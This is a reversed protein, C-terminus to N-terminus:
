CDKFEVNERKMSEIHYAVIDEDESGIVKINEMDLNKINKVFIGRGKMEEFNDMMIPVFARQNEKEKYTATINQLEIHEIPMEPLGYMCILSADIGICDIDRAHIDGIKPTREDVPLAEQNQVYDSHGDPDCFYFMNVTFPMSVDVMDIKDFFIDSLISREGRGRRTKIRLGRDTSDFICQSIYVKSVGGAVESGITVSGHGRNLKCNRIIINESPVHHYLSMYYKGSKIAICDDGVSIETGLVLVDKCSEPDFGDTNPSDSPNYIKIDLFKIDECYYSHITWSPSNKVEVGQMRIKKSRCFYVTNPRWAIRKKKADMWWDSRDANGNIVGEGIIDVNEVEMGTILSAFASLPNGEWSSFSLERREDTSERMGYLIPYHKRDTDGVLSAGKALYITIDSKLFLPRVLYEGKPIYVTGAKPCTSIAAQIYITDDTSGDGKAGFDRVDFRFSEVKTVCEREEVEGEAELRIRYKTDTDLGFVSVVNKKFKGYFVDNVYISYEKQTYYREENELELTISRNFIEVIHFKM